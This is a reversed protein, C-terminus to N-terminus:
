TRAHKEVESRHWDEDIGATSNMQVGAEVLNLIALTAYVAEETRVTETGQLPITNLVLDSLDEPKLRERALIERVGERPSGFIVIVRSAAKLKRRLNTLDELISRGYKSTMIILEDSRRKVTEGLTSKSSTVSYGWYIPVDDRSIVSLREGEASREIRLTVRNGAQPVRGEVKVPRARGIDVTALEGDSCLVLGERYAISGSRGTSEVPHHPTRLPPLVGVYRMESSLPFIRKRLYQPTELYLLIKELFKAEKRDIRPAQAYIVIENVRFIAAARALLGVRTTKERLHPTDSVFSSPIAIAFRRKRREVPNL